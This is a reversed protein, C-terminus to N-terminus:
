WISWTSVRLIDDDDVCIYFTVEPHTGLAVIVPATIGMENKRLIADHLNSTHTFDLVLRGYDAKRSKLTKRVVVALRNGALFEKQHPDTPLAPTTSDAVIAAAQIGDLMLRYNDALNFSLRPDNKMFYKFHVHLISADRKLHRFKSLVHSVIGSAYAPDEKLKQLWSCFTETPYEIQLIIKVVKEVMYVAATRLDHSANTSSKLIYVATKAVPREGFFQHLNTHAQHQAFYLAILMKRSVAPLGVTAYSPQPGFPENALPPPAQYSRFSPPCNEDGVPPELHSPQQSPPNQTSPHGIVNPARTSAYVAAPRTLCSVPDSSSAATSTTPEDTPTEDVILYSKDADVIEDM